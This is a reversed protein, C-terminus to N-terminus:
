SPEEVRRERVFEAAGGDDEPGYEATEAGLDPRSQHGSFMLVPRVEHRPVERPEKAHDDADKARSEQDVHEEKVLTPSGERHKM